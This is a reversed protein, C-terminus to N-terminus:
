LNFIYKKKKMKKAGYGRIEEMKDRLIAAKEFNLEKAERIMEAELQRMLDEKDKYDFEMEEELVPVTFYDMEYMKAKIGQIEKVITKPTINHEKNYAAQKERRRGTEGIARKMSDTMTDAYMIVTGNVNRAARGVTQILSTGSRLFGEKDADLIAVLSVEPIDLGERLLNIGILATFKGQRLERIIQVRELTDIDSHLYRCKVGKEKMFATLSEAMKKTLTTVLVRENKGDRKKIEALLDDVQGKTKRVMIEPDVLGTPRVIQEAINKKGSKEAEYDDPTASVYVVQNIKKEFEEFNLPRNDYACPLRFGYDVLNKKRSYDGAQMGHLQPLTVHSEDIFMLFDKPFYDILTSPPTGPKRGDILRSYNEIGKTYGMELLMEMDYNTRTKLREYEVPRDKFFELRGKLETEIDKVVRQITNEPMVFHSASYVALRDLRNVPNKTVPDIEVIKEVTDGSMEVRIATQSYAPYIEVIDGKIRFIGQTFEFENRTYQMVVLKEAIDDIRIKMGQELFLIMKGYNEPSGIGYICSVSAVIIVDSRTLLRYTAALRMRELEDNIASDKEIYLDRHPIYAEPQYYDYYSVFYEVANDPFFQKFEMYLQAALTKNHSIILTPRNTAEIVKAMTFTKGSGTVGLLTQYKEGKLINGALKEIAEPQDGAPQFQTSIRFKDM